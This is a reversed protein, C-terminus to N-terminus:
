LMAFISMSTALSSRSGEILARHVEYDRVPKDELAKGFGIGDPYVVIPSQIRNVLVKEKFHKSM